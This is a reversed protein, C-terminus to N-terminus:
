MDKYRGNVFTRGFNDMRGADGTKYWLRGEDEYWNEAGVGGIYSGDVSPGCGHIEGLADRPVIENTEPDVIRIGYGALPWGVSVEDGDIIRSFDSMCGASTLMGETCGFYNEGGRAGLERTVLYMTEPSLSAGGFTVNKLDRLPRDPAKAAKVSVLAHIMTPVMITHTIKERYMAELTMEPDFANGPFVVGAGVSMSNTLTMFGMAHNNPLNCVARDGAKISGETMGRGVYAAAWNNHVRFIGKPLSTTGSTFIVSGGNEPTSPTLVGDFNNATQDMHSQFTDWDSYRDSGLIVKVADPFLGLEDARSALHQDAAVVIPRGGCSAKMGMEVMHRVEVENTLNRPSIPVIVCGLKIAVYSVLVFEASNQLFTVVPTREGAGLPRWARALREVGRSLTGFSWRLYPHTISADDGPLPLNPLGFLGPAQHMCALALADPTTTAHSQFDRWMSPPQDLKPFPPGFEESPLAMSGM